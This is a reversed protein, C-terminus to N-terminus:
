SNERLLEQLKKLKEEYRKKEGDNQSNGYYAAMRPYIELLIRDCQGGAELALFEIM